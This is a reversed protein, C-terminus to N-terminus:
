AAKRIGSLDLKRERTIRRMNILAYRMRGLATNISVGTVRAIERFPVQFCVRMIVVKQQEVPLRSIVSRLEASIERNIQRMQWDLEESPIFNMVSAEDIEIPIESVKKKRRTYDIFLNHSIRRLWALILGQHHYSDRRLAQLAKILTEQYLDKTLTSNRCLLYIHALLTKRYLVAVIKIVGDADRSLLCKELKELLPSENKM